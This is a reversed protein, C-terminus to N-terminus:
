ACGRGLVWRRDFPRPRAAVRALFRSVPNKGVRRRYDALLTRGRPSSGCRASFGPKKGIIALAQLASKVRARSRHYVSCWSPRFAPQRELRGTKPSSCIRNTRAARDRRATNNTHLSGPTGTSRACQGAWHLALVAGSISVPAAKKSLRWPASSFDPCVEQCLASLPSLHFLIHKVDQCLAAKDLLHGVGVAHASGHLPGDGAVDAKIGARGAKVDAVQHRDHGQSVHLAVAVPRDGDDAAAGAHDAIGAALGLHALEEADLLDVGVQGLELLLHSGQEIEALALRQHDVVGVPEALEVVQLEQAVDAPM